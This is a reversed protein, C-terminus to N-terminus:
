GRKEANVNVKKSDKLPKDVKTDFDTAYPNKAKKTFTKSRKGKKQKNELGYLKNYLAKKRLYEEPKNVVYGDKTVMGMKILHKKREDSCFFGQLFEDKLGNYQDM